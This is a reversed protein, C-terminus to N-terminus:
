GKNKYLKDKFVLILIIVPLGMFTTTIFFNLYGLSDVITGSYGGILKPFFLMFSTFLAYQSTTFNTNTLSSLFAVFAVSAIGASINDAIIVIMLYISKPELIVLLAFLLNTAAALISGLLLILYNNYKSSLVGGVLGGLITAILGWFKSFTAIQNLTYGKDSYFLNAVVGMVIDSVRYFGIIILIIIAMSGYRTIFNKIPESFTSTLISRKIFNMKISILFLFIILIFASLFKISKLLVNVFPDQAHWDPFINFVIILGSLSIFFIIILRLRDTANSILHRKSNPEPSMFCCLLGISQLIGMIMYTKQWAHANYVQNDGGFWSALMLSGAGAAIMGIRYGIIYTGSMASQLHEPASEIRFTDIMADQTASSFGIFVILIAMLFLNNQPDVYGISIFLLILSLQSVILWSRRHGFKHTLYNIPIKDIVPAWLFKFSYALGAWSFLTITGRDIGASKLWLSLTSFILLIPLGSSFGFVLLRIVRIDKYILLSQRWSLHNTM